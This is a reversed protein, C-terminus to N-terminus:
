YTQDDDVRNTLSQNMPFANQIFAEGIQSWNERFRRSLVCGLLIAPTLLVALAIEASAHWNASLNTM